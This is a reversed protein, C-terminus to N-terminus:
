ERNKPKARSFAASRYSLTVDTGPQAAVGAAAEIASDGGRVVLVGQGRYQEADILRYVVKPQEEGPV